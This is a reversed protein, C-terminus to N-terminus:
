FFFIEQKGFMQAVLTGLVAFLLSRTRQSFEIPEQEGKTVWIPVHFLSRRPSRQRIRNLLEGQRGALLTASRHTVFTVRRGMGLLQEILGATSDLGGSFLM